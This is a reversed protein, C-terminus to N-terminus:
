EDGEGVGVVALSSVFGIVALVVLPVGFMSDPGLYNAGVLCVLSGVLLLLPELM